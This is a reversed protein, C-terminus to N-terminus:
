MDRGQPNNIIIESRTRLDKLYEDLKEGTRKEMLLDHIEGQVDAFSRGAFLGPHQQYYRKQEDLTVRVFFSIRRDVYKVTMLQEALDTRLDEVTMDDEALAREFDEETDYGAKVSELAADVEKESVDVINFRRADGLILERDILAELVEQRLLDLNADGTLGRRASETRVARDVESKTIVEGNVVAEIRDIVYAASVAPSLVAVVMM